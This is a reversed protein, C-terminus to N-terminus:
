RAYDGNADGNETRMPTPVSRRRSGCRSSGPPASRWFWSHGARPRRGRNVMGFTVSGHYGMPKDFPWGSLHRIGGDDLPVPM